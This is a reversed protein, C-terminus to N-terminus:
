LAASVEVAYKQHPLFSRETKYKQKSAQMKKARINEPVVKRCTRLAHIDKLEISKQDVLILEADQLASLTRSVTELTLGLYSGIEHRTMRLNFIKSSYGLLAFRDSLSVLFQKVRDEASLSGLLVSMTQERMLERSMIGYMAYELEGYSRGLVVLKKFPLTILDCDSLAIAETAHRNSHIADMGLLDSRMPFSLVQENGFEDIVVTKLFGSNVIYLMEFTQGMSYIRQGAKFHAHQFLIEENPVFANVVFNLRLLECIDKLTSWVKGQHKRGTSITHIQPFHPSDEPSSKSISMSESIMTGVPKKTEIRSINKNM